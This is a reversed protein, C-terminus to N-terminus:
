APPVGLGCQAVSLIGAPAQASVQTSCVNTGATVLTLAGPQGQTVVQLPERGSVTFVTYQWSGACMPAVKVTLKANGSVLGAARM